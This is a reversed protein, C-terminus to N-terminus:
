SEEHYVLIRIVLNRSPRFKYMRQIFKKFDTLLNTIQPLVSSGLGALTQKPKPRPLVTSQLSM